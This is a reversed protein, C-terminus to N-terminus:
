NQIIFSKSLTTKGDTFRLFYAGNPLTKTDFRLETKLLNNSFDAVENGLADFVKLFVNQSKFAPLTITAFGTAPNPSIKFSSNQTEEIGNPETAEANLFAINKTQMANSKFVISDSFTGKIASMFTVDLDKSSGPTLTLPNTESITWGNGAVTFEKLSPGTFGTIILDLTGLNSVKLTKTSSTNVPLTGFILDTAEISAVGAKASKAALAANVKTCGNIEVQVSDTFNGETASIFQVDFTGNGGAPITYPLAPPTVFTFGSQPNKLSIATITQTQTASTNKIVLQMVKKENTSVLGYNLASQELAISPASYTITITTDNGARDTAYLVATANKTADDVRLKWWASGAEGPAFSESELTYNSSGGLLAVASLNSRFAFDSPFDTIKGNAVSGDCKQTYTFQPAYLDGITLDKLGAGLLHGYGMQGSLAYSQAGIPTSCRIKYVGTALKIRKLAHVTGNIPELTAGYASRVPKWEVGADSLTGIELDEPMTGDSKTQFILNVYDEKTAGAIEFVTFSVENLYQEVPSLVMQFPDSPIDDDQQGTNFISISIPGDATITVPRPTSGDNLLRGEYYGAGSLGGATSLVAFPTSNGDRFLKTNPNKAFIKILPFKKRKAVPIVHYEKGWTNTPLEMEATYDSWGTTAEIQPCQNGSIVAIPKSSTFKSGSLDALTGSAKKNAFAVVDGKNLMFTKTDGRNMGGVTRTGASGGLKFTVSTNDYAAVVVTQSPIHYQPYNGTWDAYSSVIYERGLASTPLAMFTDTTNNFYSMGFVTIPAKAYVHIGKGKCDNFTQEETLSTNPLIGREYPQGEGPTLVFETVGRPNTTKVITKGLGPIELTCEVATDCMVYVKISGNSQAWNIPFSLWFDTGRNTNSQPTQSYASIYGFTLMLAALIFYKKM